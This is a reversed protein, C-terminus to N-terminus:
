FLKWHFKLKRNLHEMLHIFRRFALLLVIFIKLYNSSNLFKILHNLFEFVVAEERQWEKSKKKERVYLCFNKINRNSTALRFCLHM